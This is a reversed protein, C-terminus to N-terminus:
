SQDRHRSARTFTVWELPRQLSRHHSLQRVDRDHRALIRPVLVRVLDDALDTVARTLLAGDVTFRQELDGISPVCDALRELDGFIAIADQQRALPVLRADDPAELVPRPILLGNSALLQPGKAKPRVLHRCSRADHDGSTPPPAPHTGPRSRTRWGPP